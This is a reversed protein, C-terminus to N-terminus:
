EMQQWKGQPCAANKFFVKIPMICGCEKCQGAMPTMQPCPKCLELRTRAMQKVEPTFLSWNEKVWELPGIM